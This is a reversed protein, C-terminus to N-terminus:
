LAVPSSAFAIGGYGIAYTLAGFVLVARRGVYVSIVGGLIAAILNGM